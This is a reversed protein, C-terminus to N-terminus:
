KKEKTNKLPKKEGKQFEEKKTQVDTRRGFLISM